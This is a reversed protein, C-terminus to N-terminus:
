IMMGKVEEADLPGVECDREGTPSKIRVAVRGTARGDSYRAVMRAGLGADEDTAAGPIIATPGPCGVTSLLTDTPRARSVLAQNDREHRGIVLKAGSPLRFHRGFRLLGADFMNLSEHALLDRVRPAFQPDTLLCGGAPASFGELGKERALGIQERRSRGSVALMRDRRVWGKSEPVTEELLRASLPRLILGPVGSAKEIRRLTDLRQSMPRQGLVEGTVLFSAGECRMIDTALRLMYIHCDICPNVNSGYGHAPNRVLELYEEGFTVVVLPVGLSKAVREAASERSEMCGGFPGTFNVAIVDIGEEQAIRLALSSDLGGSLLCVAKIKKELRAQENM